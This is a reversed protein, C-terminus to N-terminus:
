REQVYAGPAPYLSYYPTHPRCQGGSQPAIWELWETWWSGETKTSAELWQDPNLSVDSNNFYGYKNYAPPNMVGAVHGSGALVFKLPGEFLGTVPYSSKWPAIHDELTSLVFTPATIKRLDLPTGRIAIGGPKMLLNEHFFKRLIFSHLSAPLRTSDANWYLFDFAPPSQGLFYNKVFFSWFLDHPRLLNFFSRLSEPGLFGRKAMSEEITSLYDEDMFLKLEGVKTFDMITAILTMTQLSFSAPKQALYAGLASLLNGGLCYGMTHLTPSKTLTTVIDAARYAGELLYDEFSRSRLEPGPNVWSMIFVNHGKELMWKVYSNSPSLDFIYFKNIWPPVILLPVSYQKKTLPTYHILEFLENRFIVNGKTCAITQGLKFGTPDTIKMEQGSRIDEMLTDLGRKLSEGQTKMFEEIVEPNTFPFNTPSVAEILQKTYFQVKQITQADLGEAHSVLDQLWRSTILYYEKMFKFYPVTDWSEHRFRKDSPLNHHEEQEPLLTREWLDSIEELLDAQAKVLSAPNEFLSQSAKLFIDGMLTPSFALPQNLGRFYSDVMVKNQEQFDDLFAGWSQLASQTEEQVSM